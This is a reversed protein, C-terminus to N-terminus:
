ERTAYNFVLLLLLAGLGIYLITQGLNNTLCFGKSVSNKLGCWFGSPDSNGGPTSTLTKSVDCAAQNAADNPNAGAQILGAQEDAQLEKKTWPDVTGSAARWVLGLTDSAITNLIGPKCCCSVACCNCCSM